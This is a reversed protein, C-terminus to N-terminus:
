QMGEMLVAMRACYAKADKYAQFIPQAFERRENTGSGFVRGTPFSLGVWAQARDNWMLTANGITINKSM